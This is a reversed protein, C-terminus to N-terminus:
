YANAILRRREMKFKLSGKANQLPLRFIFGLGM